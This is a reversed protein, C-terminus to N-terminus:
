GDSLLFICSISNQQKRNQLMWLANEVGAPIDTSSKGNIFSIAKKIEAKNALNNKLFPTLITARSDFAILCVRDDENLIKMIYKLSKRVLKAKMGQMSGSDDIVCVIDIPARKDDKITKTSVSIM